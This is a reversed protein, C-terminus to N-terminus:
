ISIEPRTALMSGAVELLVRPMRRVLNGRLTRYDQHGAVFANMVSHLTRSRSATQVMRTIFDSGLFRGVYFKDFLEAAKIFDSIFDEWCRIAYADAEGQILAQALLEGSRLAYYIGECTIPDVFGAADGVLAWGDGCIRNDRFSLARLSPIPSSYIEWSKTQTPDLLHGAELMFQHLLQRLIQSSHRGMRGCIGFSVHNPRPFAWYYGFFDPFFKIDISDEMQDPVRYGFTMMLDEAEFRHSLKKRVLSNVGDAGVLFDVRHVARNTLLEWSGERRRFDLAREQCFRAGSAIAQDLLLQNLVTRSYIALRQELSVKVKARRPSVVTMAQIQRYKQQCGNLLPYRSFAKYTVGGGCPKEWAGRPDFLLVDADMSALRSACLSGAPGAGIIGIKM